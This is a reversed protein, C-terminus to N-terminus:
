FLTIIGDRSLSFSDFDHAIFLRGKYYRVIEKIVTEINIKGSENYRPNIHTAILNKVFHDQACKGLDKATTHQVKIPLNDYTEQLYTCEHILLDLEDLYGGLIEPKDNDGAIIVKRGIQPELMFSEPHLKEGNVIITKGRKLEGYLPSPEVGIARLKEEDLRNCTDNERIYFAHSDVSHVLPLVKLTFKDFTYEDQSTYEIITLDYGLKEYSIDNMVCEIFKRIGKPGYISLPNLAKDLKKSSLLGPLGYYHDGHMHTIFITSLKGVSLRSHLLQHQTGEGCDFLYWQTDQDFELGLATVNRERTPKGASTGLFTFQM